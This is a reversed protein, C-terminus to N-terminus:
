ISQFVRERGRLDIEALRIRSPRSVSDGVGLM